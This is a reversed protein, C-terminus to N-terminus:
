QATGESSSGMVSSASTGTKRAYLRTPLCFTFYPEIGILRLLDTVGSPKGALSGDFASTLLMSGIGVLGIVVYGVTM